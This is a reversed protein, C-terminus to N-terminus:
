QGLTVALTLTFTVTMIARDPLVELPRDGLAVCDIVHPDLGGFNRWFALCSEIINRDDLARDQLADYMGSGSLPGGVEQADGGANTLSYGVEIAMPVDYYGKNAMRDVPVVNTRSGPFVVNCGRELVGIDRVRIDHDSPFITFRGPPCVLDTGLEGKLLAEVRTRINALSQAM